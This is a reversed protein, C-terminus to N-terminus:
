SGKGGVEVYETFGKWSEGKKFIGVGEIEICETFKVNMKEGKIRYKRM